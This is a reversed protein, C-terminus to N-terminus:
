WYPERVVDTKLDLPYGWNTIWQWKGWNCSASGGGGLESQEFEVITRRRYEWKVVVYIYTM